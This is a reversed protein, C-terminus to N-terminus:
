SVSLKAYLRDFRHLVSLGLILIGCSGAFIAALATGDPATGYLLVNRYQSILVAMPNYQLVQAYFEGRQGIRFFVGSAFFLMTIGSNILVRLDPVFPYAAAVLVSCAAILSLQVLMLIPLWVITPGPGGLSWALFIFMLTFVIAFKVANATLVVWLFIHKPIYIQNIIASNKPICEISQRVSGDFWRWIVLGVILFTAFNEIPVRILLGFVVYFVSM